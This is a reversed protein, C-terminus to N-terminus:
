LPCDGTDDDDPDPEPQLESHDHVEGKEINEHIAGFLMPALIEARIAELVTEAVTPALGSKNIAIRIDSKLEHIKRTIEEMNVTGKVGTGFVM